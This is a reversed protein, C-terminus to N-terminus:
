GIAKYTTIYTTQLYGIYKTLVIWIGNFWFCSNHEPDEKQIKIIKNWTSKTVITLFLM